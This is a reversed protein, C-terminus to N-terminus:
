GATDVENGSLIFFNLILVLFFVYTYIGFFMSNYIRSIYPLFTAPWLAL